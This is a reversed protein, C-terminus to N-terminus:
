KGNRDKGRKTQRKKANATVATVYNPAKGLIEATERVSLGMGLLREIKSAVTLEAPQESSRELLLLIVANLRTILQERFETDDM